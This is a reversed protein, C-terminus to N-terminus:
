AALPYVEGSYSSFARAAAILQDRSIHHEHAFRQQLDPAVEGFFTSMHGPWAQAVAPNLLCRVLEQVALQKRYPANVTTMILPPSM